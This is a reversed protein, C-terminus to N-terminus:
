ELQMGVVRKAAKLYNTNPKGSLGLEEIVQAMSEYDKSEVAATEVLAGNFWVYAYECIIGDISFGYRMKEVNVVSLEGHARALEIFTDIDYEKRDLNMEVKLHSAVSALDDQSVPFRLKVKPRFVEYGHETEYLKTKIDLLGARVKVNAENTNVSLFYHETPMQRAGHLITRGNWLRERVVDIIGHEFVRFEARPVVNEAQEASSANKQGYTNAVPKRRTVTTHPSQTDIRAHLRSRNVTFRFHCLLVMTVASACVVPVIGDIAVIVVLPPSWKWEM